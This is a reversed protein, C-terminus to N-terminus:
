WFSQSKDAYRIFNFLTHCTITMPSFGDSRKCTAISACNVLPTRTVISGSISSTRMARLPCSEDGSPSYTHVRGSTRLLIRTDSDVINKRIFFVEPCLIVAKGPLKKGVPFFCITRRPQIFFDIFVLLCHQTTLHKFFITNQCITRKRVLSVLCPFVEGRSKKRDSM